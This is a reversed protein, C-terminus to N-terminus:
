ICLTSNTYYLIYGGGVKYVQGSVGYLISSFLNKITLKIGNSACHIAVYHDCCVHIYM